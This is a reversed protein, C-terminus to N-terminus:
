LAAVSADPSAGGVRPRGDKRDTKSCLLDFKVSYEGMTQVSKRFNPFQDADQHVADVADPPFYNQHAQLQAGAGDNGLLKQSGM